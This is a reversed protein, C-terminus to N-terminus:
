LSNTSPMYYTTKEETYIHIYRKKNHTSNKSIKLYFRGQLFPFNIGIIFYRLLLRCLETTSRETTSRETPNLTMDPHCCIRIPEQIPQRPQCINQTVDLLKRCHTTFRFNILLGSYTLEVTSSICVQSVGCYFRSVM